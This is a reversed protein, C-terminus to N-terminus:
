DKAAALAAKELDYMKQIQSPSLIERFKFYYKKRLNLLKESKDFDSLIKQEAAAEADETSEPRIKMIDGSEKKYNQYLAIFADKVTDTLLLQDAIRIATMHIMKQKRSPQASLCLGTMLAIILM